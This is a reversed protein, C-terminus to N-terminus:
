IDSPLLARQLHIIAHFSREIPYHEFTFMRKQSTTGFMGKLCLIFAPMSWPPFFAGGVALNVQGCCRPSLHHSLTARHVRDKYESRRRRSFCRLMHEREREVLQPFGIVQATRLQLTADCTPPIHSCSDSCCSSSSPSPPAPRLHPQPFAGVRCGGVWGRSESMMM